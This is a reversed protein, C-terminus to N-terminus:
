KVDVLQLLNIDSTPHYPNSLDDEITQFPALEDEYDSYQLPDTESLLNSRAFISSSVLPAVQGARESQPTAPKGYQTKCTTFTLIRLPPLDQKKTLSLSLCKHIM